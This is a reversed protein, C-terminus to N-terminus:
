GQKEATCIYQHVMNGGDMYRVWDCIVNKFGADRVINTFEDEKFIHSIGRGALVGEKIDKYTGSETENGSKYGDLEEGFCVTLLKGGPKLFRFCEQYMFRIDDLHNAYICVNDIIADFFCEKYELEIADAVALHAKLGEKELRQGCKRVASESGDFAYVDFGERALYWTHSGQGCGFDLIRVNGRDMHYYNRAVFRIVHEAPYMGWGQTSHIDEWITDISKSM